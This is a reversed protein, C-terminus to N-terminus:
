PGTSAGLTKADGGGILTFLELLNKQLILYPSSHGWCRKTEGGSFRCEYFSLTRNM